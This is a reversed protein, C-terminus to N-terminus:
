SARQSLRFSQMATAGCCGWVAPYGMLWRSHEPNLQGDSETEATLSVQDVLTQGAHHHSQGPARRVTSNRTSSSDNKTPTAWSALQAVDNLNSKGQQTYRKMASSPSTQTFDRAQATPWGTFGSASIRPVSATHALLPLGSPTDKHKWTQKFLTSGRLLTRLKSELSSQLDSSDLSTTGRPGYIGSTLFGADRAQRASLSAPAAGPGSLSIMLCAPSDCLMLGDGSAPSSITNPLTECTM